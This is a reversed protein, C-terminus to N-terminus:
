DESQDVFIAIWHPYDAGVDVLVAGERTALVTGAHNLAAQRSAVAPPSPERQIHANYLFPPTKFLTSLMGPQSDASRIRQLIADASLRLKSNSGSSQPLLPYFDRQSSSSSSSRTDQRRPLTSGSLRMSIPFAVASSTHRQRAFRIFIRHDQSPDRRMRHHTSLLCCLTSLLALSLVVICIVKPCRLAAPVSSSNISLGCLVLM